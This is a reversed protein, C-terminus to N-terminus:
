LKFKLRDKMLKKGRNILVSVSNVSKKLIDSIEEYSKDELYRLVLVDRYKEPLAYLAKRVQEGLEQKRYNEPLNEDSLILNLIKGDDGYNTVSELFKGNKRIFDIALNHAIRYIWVSFSFSSDYDNLHYFVKVFVEQSIDEATHMDVSCIRVVYRKIKAEYREVLCEFYNSDKLALKVVKQDSKEACDRM